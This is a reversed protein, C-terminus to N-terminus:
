LIGKILSFDENIKKDSEKSKNRVSSHKSKIIKDAYGHNKIEESALGLENIEKVKKFEPNSISKKPPKQSHIM